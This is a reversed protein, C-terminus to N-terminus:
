PNTSKIELGEEAFFEKLENSLNERSNDCVVTDLRFGKSLIRKITAKIYAAQQGKTKLPELFTADTEHIVMVVAYKLQEPGIVEL